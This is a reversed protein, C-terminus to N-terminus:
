TYCLDQKVAVQRTRFGISARPFGIIHLSPTENNRIGLRGRSCWLMISEKAFCFIIIFHSQGYIIRFTCPQLISYIVRHSSHFNKFSVSYPKGRQVCLLSHARRRRANRGQHVFSGKRAFAAAQFRGSRAPPKCRVNQLLLFMDSEAPQWRHSSRDATRIM